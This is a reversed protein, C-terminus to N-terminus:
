GSTRGTTGGAQRRGSHRSANRVRHFQNINGKEDKLVNDIVYEVLGQADLITRSYYISDKNKNLRKNLEIWKNLVKEKNNYKNLSKEYLDKSM